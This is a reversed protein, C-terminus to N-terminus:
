PLENIWSSIMNTWDFWVPSCCWERDHHWLKHYPPGPIQVWITPCSLNICSHSDIDVDPSWSVKRAGSLRGDRSVSPFRASNIRWHDPPQHFQHIELRCIAFKFSSVWKHIMSIAPDPLHRCSRVVEIIYSQLKCHICNHISQYCSPM